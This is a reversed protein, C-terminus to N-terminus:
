MGVPHESNTIEVVGYARGVRVILQDITAEDVNLWLVGGPQEAYAAALTAALATKGMGPAGYILVPKNERLRTYVQALVADRGILTPPVMVPLATAEHAPAEHSIYDAM